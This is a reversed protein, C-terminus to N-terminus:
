IASTATSDLEASTCEDARASFSANSAAYLTDTVLRARPYTGQEPSLSTFGACCIWLAKGGAREKKVVASRIPASPDHRSRRRKLVHPLV